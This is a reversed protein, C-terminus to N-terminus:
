RRQSELLERMTCPSQVAEPSLLYMQMYRSNCMRLQEAVDFLVLGQSRNNVATQLTAREQELTQRSNELRARSDTLARIADDSRGTLDTLKRDAVVAVLSMGLISLAAGANNVALLSTAFCVVLALAALRWAPYNTQLTLERPLPM